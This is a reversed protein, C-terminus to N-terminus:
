SKYLLGCCPRDAGYSTSCFLQLSACLRQQWPAPMTSLNRKAITGVPLLAFVTTCRNLLADPTRFGSHRPFLAISLPNFPIRDRLGTTSLCVSSWQAVGVIAAGRNSHADSRPNSDPCYRPFLATLVPGAPNSGAVRLDFHVREAVLSCRWNGNLPKFICLSTPEFGM